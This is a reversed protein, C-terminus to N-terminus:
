SKTSNAGLPLNTSVPPLIRGKKQLCVFSTSMGERPLSIRLILVFANGTADLVYEVILMDGRKGAGQVFADLQMYGRSIAIPLNAGMQVLHKVVHLHGNTAAASLLECLCRVDGTLGFFNQEHLETFREVIGLDGQASAWLLISRIAGQSGTDAPHQGIVDKIPVPAGLEVASVKIKNEIARDLVKAYSPIRVVPAVDTMAGNHLCLHYFLHKREVLHLGYRCYVDSFYGHYENLGPAQWEFDFHKRKGEPGAPLLLKVLERESAM